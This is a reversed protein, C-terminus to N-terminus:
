KVNWFPDNKPVVINAHILPEPIGLDDFFDASMQPDYHQGTHILSASVGARARLERLLPAVKPFNPRAGAIVDIRISKRRVSNASPPSTSFAGVAPM